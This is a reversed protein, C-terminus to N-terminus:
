GLVVQTSNPHSETQRERGIEPERSGVCSSAQKKGGKREICHCLFSLGTLVFRLNM